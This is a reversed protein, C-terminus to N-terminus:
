KYNIDDLLLLTLKKALLHNAETSLHGIKKAVRDSYILSYKNKQPDQQFIKNSPVIKLNPGLSMSEFPNGKFFESHFIYYMKRLEKNKNNLIELLSKEIKPLILKNISEESDEKSFFENMLLQKYDFKALGVQKSVEKNIIDIVQDEEFNKNQRIFIQWISANANALGIRNDFNFLSSIDKNNSLFYYKLFKKNLGYIEKIEYNEPEEVSRMLNATKLIPDMFDKFCSDYTDAKFICKESNLLHLTALKSVFYNNKIQDRLVENGNHGLKYASLFTLHTDLAALVRYHRLLKYYAEDNEPNVGNALNLEENEAVILNTIFSKYDEFFTKTNSNYKYEEILGHIFLIQDLSSLQSLRNLFVSKAFSSEEISQKYKFFIKLLKRPDNLFPIFSTEKSNELSEKRNGSLDHAGYIGFIYNPKFTKSIEIVKDAFDKPSANYSIYKKVQIKSLPAEASLFYQLLKPYYFSISDGVCLIRIANKDPEYENKFLISREVYFGVSSLTLIFLIISLTKWKHKM